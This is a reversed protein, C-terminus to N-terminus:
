QKIFKTKYVEGSDLSILLFYCGQPLDSIVVEKSFPIKIVTQGVYNQITILHPNYLKDVIVSIKDSAPIPLIKIEQQKYVNIGLPLHGSIRKGFFRQSYPQNPWPQPVSDDIWKLSDMSYFKMFYNYPPAGNCSYYNTYYYGGYSGGSPYYALLKCITSDAWSVFITDQTITWPNTLPNAYYYKGVYTGALSDTPVQGKLMCAWLLVFALLIKRM